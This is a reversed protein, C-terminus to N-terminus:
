FRFHNLPEIISRKCCHGSAPLELKSCLAITYMRDTFESFCFRFVVPVTPLKGLEDCSVLECRRQGRSTGRIILFNEVRKMVYTNGLFGNEM